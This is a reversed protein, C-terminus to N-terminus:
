ILDSWMVGRKQQRKENGPEGCVLSPAPLGVVEGLLGEEERAQRGLRPGLGHVDAHPAEPGLVIALGHPHGHGDVELAENRPLTLPSATIDM